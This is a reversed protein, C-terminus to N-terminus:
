LRQNILSIRFSLFIFFDLTNICLDHIFYTLICQTNFDYSKCRDSDGLHVYLTVYYTEPKRMPQSYYEKTKDSVYGRDIKSQRYRDIAYNALQDEFSQYISFYLLYIFSVLNFLRSSLNDTLIYLFNLRNCVSYYMFSAKSFPTLLYLYRSRYALPIAKVALWNWM